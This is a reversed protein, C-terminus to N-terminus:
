DIYIPDLRFDPALLQVVWHLLDATMVFGEVKCANNFMAENYLFKAMSILAHFNIYCSLIEM